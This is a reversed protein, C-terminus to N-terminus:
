ERRWTIIGRITRGPHKPHQQPASIIWLMDGEIKFYRRQDTGLWSPQWSVDVEVVFADDSEIHYRGTYAMMRDFLSSPPDNLQRANDALIAFMRGDETIILSGCANSYADQREGNEFEFQFAVLKWIGVLPSDAANSL